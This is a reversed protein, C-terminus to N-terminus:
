VLTFIPKNLENILMNEINKNSSEKSKVLICCM